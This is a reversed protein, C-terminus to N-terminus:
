KESCAPSVTQISEVVVTRIRPTTSDTAASNSGEPGRSGNSSGVGSGASGTSAPQSNSLTGNGDNRPADAITQRPNIRATIIVEHDVHQGLLVANGQVAYDSVGNVLPGGSGGAGNAGVGRNDDSAPTAHKLMFRNVSSTTDGSAQAEDAARRSAV